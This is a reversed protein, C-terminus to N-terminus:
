PEPYICRKTHTQRGHSDGSYRVLPRRCAPRWHHIKCRYFSGRRHLRISNKVFQAKGNFVVEVKIYLTTDAMPAKEQEEIYDAIDIDGEWDLPHDALNAGSIQKVSTQITDAKSEDSTLVYTNIRVTPDKEPTEAKVYPYGYNLKM